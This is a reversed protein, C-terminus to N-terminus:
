PPVPAAATKSNRADAEVTVGLEDLIALYDAQETAVAVPDYGQRRIAEPLSIFGNRVAASLSDIEKSPDVIVRAPPTWEAVFDTTLIGSQMNMADLFWRFVGDCFVPIFTSWLWSDLNRGMDQAGMRASSFNVRSLDGTLVEYTIGIGAAIKRLAFDRFASDDSAAPPETFEIQTGPKLAYMTGPQLDPLQTELEDTFDNPDNSILFGAFLNAIQQRRLYADELIALERLTVVVPALWTVGREQGPRDRRFLHLVEAAPVRSYESTAGVGAESGPHRKYLYYAVRRGLPDFEIGRYVTNAPPALPDLTAIDALMDAEIVQLQIPLPLNDEPRRPRLRVLVEGAEVWSRFALQQLGYFDQYGTADCASTEAWKEWAKQATAARTKSKARIQCRIGYGVANNVLSQVAKAAWPSNRVLDRARNRAVTPNTNTATADLSDTAWASLRPTMSGADYRRIAKM